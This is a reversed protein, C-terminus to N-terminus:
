LRTCSAARRASRSPRSTLSATMAAACPQLPVDHGIGLTEQGRGPHGGGPARDAHADGVPALDVGLEVGGPQFELRPPAHVAADREAVLAARQAVEDGLPVVQDPPLVPRLRGPPQVGGVVERPEGPPQAGRGALAGAHEAEVWVRDRDLLAPPPDRVPPPPPAPHPPPRRRPHGAPRHGHHAGPWGPQGGRLLEGPGPVRHGQVLARLRGAAQEPEADGLELQLLPVQVPPQVLHPGPARHERAPDGTAGVDGGPPRPGLLPRPPSCSATTPAPPAAIRRPRGTGPASRSPTWWAMSNRGAALRATACPVSGAMLARPRCTTIMPPPSVPASQRPVTCRCPAAD